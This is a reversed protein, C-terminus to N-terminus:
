RDASVTHDLLQLILRGKYYDIITKALKLNHIKQEFINLVGLACFFDFLM